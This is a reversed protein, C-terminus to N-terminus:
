TLWRRSTPNARLKNTRRAGNSYNCTSAEPAIWSGAPPRQTVRLWPRARPDGDVTHGGTWKPRDGNRHPPHQDLTLGDRWCVAAPNANAIRCVMNRNTAYDGSHHAAKM